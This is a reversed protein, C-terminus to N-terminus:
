HANEALLKKVAADFDAAAAKTAAPPLATDGTALNVWAIYGDQGHVALLRGNASWALTGRVPVILCRRPVRDPAAAAYVAFAPDLLSEDILWAHAKGGSDIGRAAVPGLACFAPSALETFYSGDTTLFVTRPLEFWPEDPRRERSPFRVGQIAVARDHLSVAVLYDLPPVSVPQWTVGADLSQEVTYPIGAEPLKTPRTGWLLLQRPGVVLLGEPRFPLAARAASWSNGADTSRLLAAPEAYLLWLTGGVDWAALARAFPPYVERGAVGPNGPKARWVATTDCPAAPAGTATATAATVLPLPMPLTRARGVLKGKDFTEEAYLQGDPTWRQRVGQLQGAEYHAELSKKRATWDSYVTETGQKLGDRYDTVTRWAAHDALESFSLRTGTGNTLQQVLAGTADYYRGSLLHGDTFHEESRPTGDPYWSKWAGHEKFDQHAELRAPMGNLYLYLLSGTRQAATLWRQREDAALAVGSGAPPNFVFVKGPNDLCNRVFARARTADDSDAAQLPAAALLLLTVFLHRTNM